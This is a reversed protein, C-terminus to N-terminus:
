SVNDKIGPSNKRKLLRVIIVISVIPIWVWLFESKLVRLGWEGFFAAIGIPSVQLPTFPFFYRTNDFPAFLAIGLGGNTLADLIGHTSTIIFFYIVLYTWSKSFPKDKKFFIIVVLLALILAFVFSHSFGRHGWFDRYSVGFYFTVVDADPLVPCLASLIWFRLKDTKRKVLSGSVLGVFSHTIISAM